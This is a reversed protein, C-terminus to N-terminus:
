KKKSGKNGGSKKSQAVKKMAKAEKAKETSLRKAAGRAAKKRSPTSAIVQAEMLTRADNEAQWKKDEATMQTKAM